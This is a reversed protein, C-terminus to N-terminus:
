GIRVRLRPLVDSEIYKELQSVEEFDNVLVIDAITLLDLIGYLCERLDRVLVSSVTRDDQRARQRFRSERVPRSAVVYILVTDMNLMEKIVDIEDPGRVGEVIVIEATVDRLKEVLRYAVARRGERTRLMTAVKGPDIGLRAAEERIIDGMSFLPAKLKESLIKAVTTKGSCPLGAILIALRTKV